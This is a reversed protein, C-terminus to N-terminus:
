KLLNALKKVDTPTWYACHAWYGAYVSQGGSMGHRLIRAVITSCNNRLLNYTNVSVRIRGWESQMHAAKLNPLRIMHEPIRYGGEGDGESLCDEEFTCAEREVNTNLDKKGDVGAGGPFWSAYSYTSIPDANGLTANGIAIAAHGVGNLPEWVCVTTADLCKWAFRVMELNSNNPNAKIAHGSLHKVTAGGPIFDILPM